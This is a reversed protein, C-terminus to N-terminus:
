ECKLAVLPDVSAARMAPLWSAALSTAVLLVAVSVFTQLDTPGVDYLLGTMARTLALAAALGILIGALAIKLSHGLVIRVVGVREAGLAMRLGIEPTRETVFYAIVGYIGLTALGLGVSALLLVLRLYFRRTATLDVFTRDLTRVDYLPISSDIRSVARRMVPVYGDPWDNSTRVVLVMSRQYVDWSGSPAQTYPLFIELPVPTAQGLSRVDAVVGVVERWEPEPTAAWGSVRRGIPSEGPWLTEALRQNIVAVQPAGRLMDSPELSRGRVTTMGVAEFYDETVLRFLPSPMAGPPVARGEVALAAEVNGGGLPISTSAGARGVGREARLEDLMRGYAESVLSGERYRAAPLSLRATLVDHTEFGLPVERLNQASRFLLGTGVLLVVTLAVQSVILANRLRDGSMSSLSSKGGDRLSSQLDTPVARLAPALGFAIAAAVTVALSFLLVEPELGAERLRPVNAPGRNIFYDITAYAVAIGATGGALALMLSETLLQRVIRPRGGGLSARVAFERRRTRARALLLSAINVCAILLVCGVATLLVFLQVRVDGSLADQLPQIRVGRSETERPNRESIGRTVRELDAQAETFTVGPKLRALVGFGHNGYNARQAPSFVLPTWLQSSFGGVVSARAPDTLAYEAPAVGLVVFPEGNLRIERGVVSPERGFRGRWLGHGLVVMRAGSAVDENTFYRGLVPPAYAVQFYGPTVRMGSIREPEGTDAGLNYTAPQGAATTEFVVAQETWDHFHGASASGLRERLTERVLVIREAAAYPLPRLLVANVISFVATTLGIGLALTLISISSFTPHRALM